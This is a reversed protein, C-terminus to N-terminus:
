EAPPPGLGGRGARKAEGVVEEVLPGSGWVWLAAIWGIAAVVIVIVLGARHGTPVGALGLASGVLVLVALGMAPALALRLEWPHRLLAFSWGSGAASIVAFAIVAASVLASTPPPFLPSTRVLPPRSAPRLLLVDAAIEVNRRDKAVKDFDAYYPRIVIAIAGPQQMAQVADAEIM